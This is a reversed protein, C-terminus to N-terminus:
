SLHPILIQFFPYLKPAIKAKVEDSSCWAAQQIELFQKTKGSNKPYEMEFYSSKITSIDIDKECYFASVLKNKRQKISGLPFIEEIIAIGTEERFERRATDQTSENPKSEGKPFTWIGNIPDKYFPGGPCVLLFELQNNQRRYVIIGSSHKM